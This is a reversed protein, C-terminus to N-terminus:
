LLYQFDKNSIMEDHTKQLELEIRIFREEEDEFQGLVEKLYDEDKSVLELPELQVSSSRKSQDDKKEKDSKPSSSSSSSSSSQELIAAVTDMKVGASLALKAQSSNVLM